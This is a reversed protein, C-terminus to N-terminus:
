AVHYTALFEAVRQNFKQESDTKRDLLALITKFASDFLKSNAPGVHLNVGQNAFAKQKAGWSEMYQKIEAFEPGTLNVQAPSGEKIHLYYISAATDMTPNKEFRIVALLFQAGEDVYFDKCLAVFQPGIHFDLEMRRIIEHTLM